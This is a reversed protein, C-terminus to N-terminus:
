ERKQQKEKEQEKHDQEMRRRVGQRRELEANAQPDATAAAAPQVAAAAIAAAEVAGELARFQGMALRHGIHGPASLYASYQPKSRFINFRRHRLRDMRFREAARALGRAAPFRPNLPHDIWPDCQLYALKPLEPLATLRPCGSAYL